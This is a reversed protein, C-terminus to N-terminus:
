TVTFTELSTTSGSPTTVELVGSASRNPVSVTIQSVTDTLPTVPWVGDDFAVQTAMALHRGSITVVTGVPGSTPSIHTIVPAPPLRLLAGDIHRTTRGVTVAVPTADAQLSQHDYWQVRYPATPSGCANFEVTYSGTNLGVIVYTGDTGSFGTWHFAGETAQVCVNALPPRGLQDAVVKGKISGGAALAQDINPTTQGGQVPVPTAAGETAKSSYWTTAYSQTSPQCGSFQVRYNGTPLGPAVGYTGDAATVNGGVFTGGSDYVGVCVNGLPQGTAASTVTGSISFTTAGAPGPTLVLAMGAGLVAGWHRLRRVGDIGM